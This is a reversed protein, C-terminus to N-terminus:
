SDERQVDCLKREINVQSKYEYGGKSQMNDQVESGTPEGSGIHNLHQFNSPAGIM